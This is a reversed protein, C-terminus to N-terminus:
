EQIDDEANDGGLPWQQQLLMLYGLDGVEADPRKRFLRNAALGTGGVGAAYGGASAFPAWAMTAGVSQLVSFAGGTAGGYVASQVSAAVSGAVVGSAGFGAAPIALAGLSVMSGAAFVAGLAKTRASRRATVTYANPQDQPVLMWHESEGLNDRDARVEFADSCTLYKGTELSKLAVFPPFYEVLFKEGRYIMDIHAAVEGNEYASIFNGTRTQLAVLPTNAGNERPLLVVQILANETAPGFTNSHVTRDPHVTIYPHGAFGRRSRIFMEM